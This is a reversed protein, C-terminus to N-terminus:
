ALLHVLAVRGFDIGSRLCSFPVLLWSTKATSPPEVLIGGGAPREAHAGLVDALAVEVVRGAVPAIRAVEGLLFQERDLSSTPRELEPASAVVASM